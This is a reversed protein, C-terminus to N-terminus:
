VTLTLLLMIELSDYHCHDICHKCHLMKARDSNNWDAGSDKFISLKCIWYVWFVVVLMVVICWLWRWQISSNIPFLHFSSSCLFNNQGWWPMDTHCISSNLMGCPHPGYCLPLVATKDGWEKIQSPQPSPTLAPQWDVPLSHQLSFNWTCKM